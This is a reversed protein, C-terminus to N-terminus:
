PVKKSQAFVHDSIYNEALNKMKSVRYLIDKYQSTVVSGFNTPNGHESFPLIQGCFVILYMSLLKVLLFFYLAIYFSNVYM